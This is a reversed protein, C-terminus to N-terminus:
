RPLKALKAEIADIIMSWDQAAWSKGRNALDTSAGRCKAKLMELDARALPPSCRDLAAVVDRAEVLGLDKGDTSLAELVDRFEKAPVQAQKVLDILAPM